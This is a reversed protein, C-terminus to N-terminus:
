NAATAPCKSEEERLIKPVAYRWSVHHHIRKKTNGMMSLRVCSPNEVVAFMSKLFTGDDIYEDSMGGKNKQTTKQTLSALYTQCVLKGAKGLRLYTVVDENICGAFRVSSDVNFVFSNMAKRKWLKGRAFEGGNAGGVYDGAQSLSLVAGTKEVFAVMAEFLADLDNVYTVLLRGGVAERKEFTKYDDDLEVFWNFGRRKAIDFAANRAYLIVGRKALGKQMMTDSSEVYEQKCFTEVNDAGYIRKYEDAQNDEDDIVYIVRGTYGHRRLAKETTVRGARGHTLILAVFDSRM